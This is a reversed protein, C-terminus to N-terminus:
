RLLCAKSTIISSAIEYPQRWYHTITPTREPEYGWSSICSSPGNGMCFWVNLIIFIVSKTAPYLESRGTRSYRSDVSAQLCVSFIHLFDKRISCCCVGSYCHLTHKRIYRNTGGRQTWVKENWAEVIKARYVGWWLEATICHPWRTTGKKIYNNDSM